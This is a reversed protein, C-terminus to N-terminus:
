PRRRYHLQISISMASHRPYKPQNKGENHLVMQAQSLAMKMKHCACTTTTVVLMIKDWSYRHAGQCSLVLYSFFLLLDRLSIACYINPNESLTSQNRPSRTVSTTTGLRASSEHHRPASALWWCKFFESRDRCDDHRSQSYCIIENAFCPFPIGRYMNSSSCFVFLM